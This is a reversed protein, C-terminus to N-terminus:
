KANMFKTYYEPLQCSYLLSGMIQCTQPIHYAMYMFRGTAHSFSKCFGNYLRFLMTKSLEQTPPLRGLHCCFSPNFIKTVYVTIDGIVTAAHDLAHLTKAQEFASITPEFGV